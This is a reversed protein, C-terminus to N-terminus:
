IQWPSIVINCASPTKVLCLDGFQLADQDPIDIEMVVERCFRFCLDYLIEVTEGSAVLQTVTIKIRLVDQHTSPLRKHQIPHSGCSGSALTALVDIRSFHASGPGPVGEKM